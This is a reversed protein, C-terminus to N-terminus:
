ALSQHEVNPDLVGYTRVLAQKVTRGNEDLRFIANAARSLVLTINM